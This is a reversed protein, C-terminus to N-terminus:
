IHKEYKPLGTVQNWTRGKVINSITSYAVNELQSIESIKKNEEFYEKKIKLVKEKDIKAGVPNTKNREERSVYNLNTLNSLTSGNLMHQITSFPINYEKSLHLIPIKDIKNRKIIEELLIKPIKTDTQKYKEYFSKDIIGTFKNWSKGQIVDMITYRCVELEKILTNVEGYKRFYKIIKCVQYKTLVTHEEEISSDYPAILTYEKWMEGRVIKRYSCINIKYKNKIYKNSIGARIMKGIEKLDEVTFKGLSRKNGGLDLNYGNSNKFRLSSQYKEIYYIEKNNLEEKNEAKDIEEWKIDEFNSVRLAKHFPQNSIYKGEKKVKCTYEHQKKRKQLAKTTQGIYVKGNPFTVKYIIGYM